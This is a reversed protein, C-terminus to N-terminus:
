PRSPESIRKLAQTHLLGSHPKEMLISLPSTDNPRIKFNESLYASVM